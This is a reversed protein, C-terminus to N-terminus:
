ILSFIELGVLTNFKLLLGQNREICTHALVGSWQRLFRALPFRTGLFGPFPDPDRDQHEQSSCEWSSVQRPSDGKGLGSASFGSAEGNELESTKM